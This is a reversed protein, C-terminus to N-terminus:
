EGQLSTVFGVIERALEEAAACQLDHPGDIVAQRSNSSIELWHAQNQPGGKNVGSDVSVVLVPFEGFPVVYADQAVSWPVVDVLETNDEWTFGETAQRAAMAAPDDHYTEIPMLGAIRDPHTHAYAIAINGGGFQGAMVYPPELELAALVGDLVGVLDDGTRAHNPPASSGGTGLRNYTCVTTVESISEMMGAWAEIGATDSGAELITVPGGSGECWYAVRADGVEVTGHGYASSTPPPPAPSPAPEIVPISNASCGALVIAAMAVLAAARSRGIAIM